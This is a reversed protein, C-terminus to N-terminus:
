QGRSGTANVSSAQCVRNNGIRAAASLANYSGTVNNNHVVHDPFGFPSIIAGLHIIANCGWMAQELEDYKGVNAQVHTVAGTSGDAPVATQDISVVTHGQALALETTVRGIRGRGGTIAIKM